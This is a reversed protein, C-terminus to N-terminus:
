KSDKSKIPSVWDRSNTGKGVRDSKRRGPTPSDTAIAAMEDGDLRDTLPTATLSAEGGLDPEHPPDQQAQASEQQAPAQAQAQQAQEDLAPPFMPVETMQSDGDGPPPAPLTLMPPPCQVYAEVVARAAKRDTALMTETFVCTWCLEHSNFVRTKAIDVAYASKDIAIVNLGFLRAAITVNGSGCGMDLFWLDARPKVALGLEANLIELALSIPKSVLALNGKQAFCYWVGVHSKLLL